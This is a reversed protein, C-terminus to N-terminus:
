HALKSIITVILGVGAAVGLFLAALMWPPIAKAPKAAAADWDVHQGYRDGVPSMLNAAQQPNAHAPSPSPAQYPSRQSSPLVSPALDSSFPRGGQM